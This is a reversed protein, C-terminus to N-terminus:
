VFRGRKVNGKFKFYEVKVQDRKHNVVRMKTTITIVIIRRELLYLNAGQLNFRRKPILKRSNTVYLHELFASGGRSTSSTATANPMSKPLILM